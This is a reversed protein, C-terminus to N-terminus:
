DTNKVWDYLDNFTEISLDPSGHIQKVRQYYLDVISIYIGHDRKPLTIIHNYVHDMLDFGMKTGYELLTLRIQEKEERTVTEQNEM